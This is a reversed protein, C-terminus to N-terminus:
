TILRPYWTGAANTSMRSHNYSSNNVYVTCEGAIFVPRFALAGEWIKPRLLGEVGFWVCPATELTNPCQLGAVLGCGGFTGLLDELVVDPTAM